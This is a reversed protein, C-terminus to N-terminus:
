TWAQADVTTRPQQPRITVGAASRKAISPAHSPGPPLKFGGIEGITQTPGADGMVNLTPAGISGIEGTLHEWPVGGYTYLNVPSGSPILPSEVVPCNVPVGRITRGYWTVAVPVSWASVACETVNGISTTSTGVDSRM